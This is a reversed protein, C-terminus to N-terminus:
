AARRLDPRDRLFDTRTGLPEILSAKLDRGEAHRQAENRLNEPTLREPDPLRKRRQKKRFAEAARIAEPDFRDLDWDPAKRIFLAQIDARLTLFHRWSKLLSERVPIGPLAQEVFARDYLASHHPARSRARDLAPLHPQLLRHMDLNFRM